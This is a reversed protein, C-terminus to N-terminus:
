ENLLHQMYIIPSKQLRGTNAHYVKYKEHTNKRDNRQNNLPFLDKTAENKLCRKAFTLCLDKRRDKLSKLNSMELANEYNEYSNRYIIKLATKQVRELDQENEITLMSHWVVASQECLSRIYLIYINVLDSIQLHGYLYKSNFSM